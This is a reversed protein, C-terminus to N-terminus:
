RAMNLVIVNSSDSELLRGNVVDYATVTCELLGKLGHVTTEIETLDSARVKRTLEAEQFPKVIASNCWLRFRTTKKGTWDWGITVPGTRPREDGFVVIQRATARNGRADEAIFTVVNTGRALAVTATWSVDLGPVTVATGSPCRDCTWRVRTVGVNDRATGVIRAPSKSSIFHPPVMITPAVSDTPPSTRSVTVTARGENGLRDVCAASITNTGLSVGVAPALWL